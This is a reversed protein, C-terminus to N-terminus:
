GGIHTYDTMKGAGPSAVKTNNYHVFGVSIAWLISGVTLLWTTTHCFNNRVPGDSCTQPVIILCVIGYIGLAIMEVINSIIIYEINKNQTLNRDHIECEQPNNTPSSEHVGFFVLLWSAVIDVATGIAFWTSFEVLISESDQEHSTCFDRCQDIFAIYSALVLLVIKSFVAGAIVVNKRRSTYFFTRMESRLTHTNIYTSSWSSTFPFDRNSICLCRPRAQM